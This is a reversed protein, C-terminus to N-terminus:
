KAVLGRLFEVDKELMTIMRDRDAIQQELMLTRSVFHPTLPKPEEHMTEDVADNSALIETLFMEGRGMVLWDINIGPFGNGISQITDFNPKMKGKLINYFKEARDEGVRAAFRYVSLHYHEMLMKVREQVTTM